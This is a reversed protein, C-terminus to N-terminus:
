KRTINLRAAANNQIIHGNLRIMHQDKSIIREQLQFMKFVKGFFNEFVHLVAIGVDDGIWRAIQVVGEGAGSSFGIVKYEVTGIHSPIQILDDVELRFQVVDRQDIPVRCRSNEVIQEYRVGERGTIRGNLIGGDADPM